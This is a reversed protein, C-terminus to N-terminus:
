SSSSELSEISPPTSFHDNKRKWPLKIVWKKKKKEPLDYSSSSYSSTESDSQTEDEESETKIKETKMSMEKFSKRKEAASELNTSQPQEKVVPVPPPKGSKPQKNKRMSSHPPVSRGFSQITTRSRPRDLSVTQPFSARSDFVIERERIESPLTFSVRKQQYTARDLSM